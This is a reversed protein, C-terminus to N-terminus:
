QITLGDIVVSGNVITMSGKVTTMGLSQNFGPDYGGRITVVKYNEFFLSEVFLARQAHIEAGSDADNYAQQVLTYNKPIGVIRVFATIPPPSVTVTVMVATSTTTAGQNDYAVATLTYNGVAVNTWSYGYPATVATGLLTAGNYFEVKSVTGDPDSATAALSITAPATFVAGNAPATLTITPPQNVTGTIFLTFAKTVSAGL